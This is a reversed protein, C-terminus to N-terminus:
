VNFRFEVVDGDNIIYEKGELKVLGKEKAKSYSGLELLVDSPIIEARIFGREFDTHIKAAAKPAKDGKKITWARVEDRGVTLFSILGLLKYSSEILRALGSQGIGLEQLFIEKEEDDLQAIEEEIKACIVVAESNEKEAYSLIKQVLKMDMIDKGIDKESINVVYIVPKETLLSLPKIIKQEERSLKMNRVPIDKELNEKVRELIMLEAKINSDGGRSLKEVNRIKKELSEIDTLILEINITEIDSLPDIKSGVHIVNENEFCRITHIIADVERIYALFRNGLGEGRVSGSVLGAIDIFEINAPTTKKPSYMKSLKELRADPVTVIGVNPVITSFPHNATQVGAKTIANFLTSKGVSPLGLIGLKM